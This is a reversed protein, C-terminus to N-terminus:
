GGLHVGEEFGFVVLFPLPIEVIGDAWNEPSAFQVDEVLLGAVLYFIEVRGLIFRIEWTSNTTSQSWRSRM